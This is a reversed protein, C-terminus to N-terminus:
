QRTEQEGSVGDGVAAKWKGGLYKAGVILLRTFQDLNIAWWIGALGFRRSLLFSLPIRCGWIGVGASIMPTVTDGAGRLSGSLTGSIQQPIQSFGMILLYQAGLAIVVEDDTLLRMLVRPGFVLIATTITTLAIGWKVIERIYRDALAPNRAGLSRGVLATAAIAFGATPMYSIGEAQLGLQYAAGAETGFGNVLRFLIVSALQWFAMEASSPIGIGLLRKILGFDYSFFNELRVDVGSRGSLLYRAAIAAGVAQGIITSVAPGRFGLAPLGFRGFILVSNLGAVVLNTVVAIQMPVRTNGSGRLIASIIMFVVQFPLSFVLIRLYAVGIPLSEATAKFALLLYPAFLFVATGVVGVITLGLLLAQQATRRVRQPDEAGIAQAVLVTTGTGIANFIIWVFMSVRGSLGVALITAAGLRGVMATNVFGILFQLINETAVPWVMNLINRRIERMSPEAVAARVDPAGSM